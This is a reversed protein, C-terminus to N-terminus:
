MWWAGDLMFGAARAHGGGGYGKAAESVDIADDGRSRLGVVVRGDGRQFWTAGFPEGSLALAEGVESFFQGPCNVIAVDHGGITTRGPDALWPAMLSERYRQIRAGVAEAEEPGKFERVLAGFGDVTGPVGAYGLGASVLRSGPLAWRWLDRDEIYRLPWPPERDHFHEWAMRCGSRDMDIVCGPVETLPLATKHHDLLLFSEAEAAMRRVTELDFSFDVVIVKRGTVDPPEDGYHMPLYEGTKFKFAMVWAAAIGDMCHAHYIVLPDHLSM